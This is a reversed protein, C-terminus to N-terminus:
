TGFFFFTAILSIRIVKKTKANKHKERFKNSQRKLESPNVREVKNKQNQNKFFCCAQNWKTFLDFLAM